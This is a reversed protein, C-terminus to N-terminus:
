YLLSVSHYVSYYFQSAGAHIRTSSSRCTRSYTHVKTSTFCTFQTTFQSAGAHIRDLQQSLHALLATNAPAARYELRAAACAGAHLLLLQQLRLAADRV